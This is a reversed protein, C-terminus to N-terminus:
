RGKNAEQEAQRRRSYEPAALVIMMPLAMFSAVPVAWFFLFWGCGTKEKAYIAMCTNAIAAAINCAVLVLVVTRMTEM